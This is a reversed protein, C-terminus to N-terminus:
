GPPRGPPWVARRRRRRLRGMVSLVPGAIVVAGLALTGTGAAGSGAATTPLGPPGHHHTPGPNPTPTPPPPTPHPTPPPNHGCLGFRHGHGHCPQPGGGQQQHQPEPKPQANPGMMNWPAGDNNVPPFPMLPLSNFHANFYDHWILAPWQGGYGSLGGVGFLTQIGQPPAYALSAANQCQTQLRKPCKPRSVFM